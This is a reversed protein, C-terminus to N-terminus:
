VDFGMAGKELVVQESASEAWTIRDAQKDEGQQAAGTRERVNSAECVIFVITCRLSCRMRLNSASPCAARSVM